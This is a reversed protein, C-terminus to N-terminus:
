FRRRAGGHSRGSSSRHTTSRTTSRTRTTTGSSRSGTNTTTPIVATTVFKDLLQDTTDAFKFQSNARYAAYYNALQRENNEMSYQSVVNRTAIAAAALSIGAALLFEFVTIRRYVSVRGTESDYNYQGAVVGSKGYDVADEVYALAAGAFDGDAVKDYVHDLITELRADTFVRIAGGETSLVLERNDMDIMLLIGSHDRGIGFGGAEYRDDANVQADKGDADDTTMVIIDFDVKSLAKTIAEEIAEGEKRSFLGAYDYVHGSEGSESDALATVPFLVACILVVLMVGSLIRKLIYDMKRTKVGSM